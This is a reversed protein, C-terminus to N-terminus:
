DLKRENLHDLIGPCASEIMDLVTEFGNAGGYYPDPVDQPWNESLFESLMRVDAKPDSHLARIEAHNSRDMAIVLDFEDLDNHTIKRARSQLQYGRKQAAQQMRPDARKGAHYGITGASDVAIRDSCGNQNLLHQMVGEAAPSRCINGM